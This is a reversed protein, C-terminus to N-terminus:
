VAKGHRVFCPKVIKAAFLKGRIEVSCETADSMPIRALAIAKGLTPSFSGSTIEGKGTGPIIVPLHDRLMGREELILGVLKQSLGAKIQALLATKGIFDRDHPEWAITWALNSELPSTTENMDSGYLNLGAELRLTDRAGLGCASVGAQLLANWFREAEKAPLIIEYGDEGTYGTRAVLWDNWIAAHFPKLTEAKEKLPQALVTHAKERANPGQVAIMATDTRQIVKVSFHQAQKTLWAIDKERTSANVVLRYDEPSFYYAILDDIVGGEENLMCSYLAKGPTTLKAVDNALVKQLFAKADAGKVDLVTMHSVDFMGADERVMKHEQLQSGYHVPMDWGGFDILKANLKEHQQYLSTRKNM